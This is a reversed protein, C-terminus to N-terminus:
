KRMRSLDVDAGKVAQALGDAVSVKRAFIRNLQTEIIPIVTQFRLSRETSITRDASENTFRLGTVGQAILRQNIEKQAEKQPVFCQYAEAMMLSGTKGCAFKVFKYAELKHKSQKAVTMSHSMSVITMKSKPGVPFPVQNPKWSIKAAIWSSIIDTWWPAMAFKSQKASAILDFSIPLVKKTSILSDVIGVGDIAGKEGLLCKKGDDSFIRGGMGKIWPLVGSNLYLPQMFGWRQTKGDPGVKTTKQAAAVMSDFDWTGNAYQVEPDVVGTEQFVNPNYNIWWKGLM